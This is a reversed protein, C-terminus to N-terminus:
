EKMKIRKSPSVSSGSKKPKIFPHPLDLCFLQRGEHYIFVQEECGKSLNRLLYLAQRPAKFSIHHATAIKEGVSQWGKQGNFYCLEYEQGPWVFNDDTRPIVEIASIVAPKELKLTIFPCDKPTSYITLVDNDRLANEKFYSPLSTLIHFTILDNPVSKSHLKLEAFAIGRGKPPLIRLYQYYKADQNCSAYLYNVSLPTTIQLLTDPRSFFQTQSGVIVSGVIDENMWKRHRWNLPMKRLLNLETIQTTDPHFTQVQGESNLVFADGCVVTGGDKTVMIPFFFVGPEINNFRVRHNDIRTGVDLAHYQRKAWVGLYVDNSDNWTNVLVSNSGFYNSTVDQLLPNKIRRPIALKNKLKYVRNLHEPKVGYTYRYVKGKKRQDWALSDRTLPMQDYGFPLDKDTLNDHLVMWQHSSGNEPSVLIMDSTVPIGCARMAYIYRDCDDRCYGVRNHLLSLADRHPTTLEDNYWGIGEKDVLNMVIKCAELVDSGHYLTDLQNAYRSEYVSRWSTLREDGIRYPLIFDCFEQFSLNKNWARTKWQRFSREITDILYNATIVHADARHPLSYFPYHAWKQLTEDDLKCNDKRFMIPKLIAEVTDLPAGYFGYHYPINAVLFKAAELKESSDAYHTLVQELERRNDGAFDLAYAISSSSESICSHCVISTELLLFVFFKGKRKQKTYLNQVSVSLSFLKAFM